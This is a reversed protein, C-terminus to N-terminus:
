CSRFAGQHSTLWTLFEAFDIKGDGNADALAMAARAVGKDLNPLVAAVVGLFVGVKLVGTGGVDASVFLDLVTAESLKALKGIWSEPFESRSPLQEGKVGWIEECMRYGVTDFGRLEAHVYPFYDNRFRRSSFFAETCEAFYEMHDNMCYPKTKKQCRGMYEGENYIGSATVKDYAIKIIGDVADENHCHYAHALEHLLMAPQIAAWDL